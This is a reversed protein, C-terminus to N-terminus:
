YFYYKMSLTFVSSEVGPFNTRIATADTKPKSLMHMYDFGFAYNGSTRYQVGLGYAYGTRTKSQRALATETYSSKLTAIGLLAYGTWNDDFAIKPKLLAAAFYDIRAKAQGAGGQKSNGSTGIRLEGGLCESFDDGIQVFGGTVAKKAVGTGVNFAGINGGVYPDSAFADGSFTLGMGTMLCIASAFKMSRNM